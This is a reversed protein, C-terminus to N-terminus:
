YSLDMLKKTMLKLPSQLQTTQKLKLFYPYYFPDGGGSFTVAKVKMEELDDIIEMMKDKPIKDRVSMDKGLQLNDAKYACYWCNHGCANTPKIRVYVPPTIEQLNKPLSDIKEKFHFIKFKSYLEM